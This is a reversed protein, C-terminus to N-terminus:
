LLTMLPQRLDNVVSFSCWVAREYISIFLYSSACHPEGSLLTYFLCHTAAAWKCIHIAKHSIM